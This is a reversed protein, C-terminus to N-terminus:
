QALLRAKADDLDVVVVPACDLDLERYVRLRQNGSLVEYLDPRHPHPRAVLNEVLGFESVSRRLKALLPAPMRNANWPAEILLALPISWLEMGDRRAAPRPREEAPNIAVSPRVIPPPTSKKAKM